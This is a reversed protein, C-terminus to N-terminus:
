HAIVLRGTNREGNATITYFYVGNALDATNFIAKGNTVNGMEQVKVIQGLTNIIAVSVNAQQNTSFTIAVEASAPNPYVNAKNLTSTKVNTPGTSTDSWTIHFACQPVDYGAPQPNWAYAVSPVLLPNSNYTFYPTYEAQTTGALGSQYSGPYGTTANHATQAFWVGAGGPLGAYLKFTNAATLNTGLTYNHGSRPHAYSVVKSGAPVSLAPSLAIVIENFGNVDTDHINSSNYAYAYRQPQAGSAIGTYMENSGPTYLGTCFRVVSDASIDLATDSKHFQLAFVGNSPTGLPVVAFEVIMSDGNNTADNQVYNLPLFFSDVTYATMYDIPASVQSTTATAYYANDTPDFSMGMGHFFIHSGTSATNDYVNSDQYTSFYYGQSSTSANQSWLNYWDAHNTTTKQALNSNRHSTFRENIANKNTPQAAEHIRNLVNEQQQNVFVVSNNQQGQATVVALGTAALLILKKM